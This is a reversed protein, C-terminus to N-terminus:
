AGVYSNPLKPYPYPKGSRALDLYNGWWQMMQKRQDMYKAHNYAGAVQNKLLHALQAEVHFFNFGAENLITSALGRYGHGTMKGQYGMRKLAGLITNNSMPKEHDREGPFILKCNGTLANLTKLVEIAQSCLPVIHSGRKKKKMRSEPVTWIANDFDIEEWRAGILESTRIFTLAMLKMALRTLNSGVYAEVKTLFVPLDKYEVRAFNEVQRPKMFDGCRVEATPNRDTLGHAIAYRFVQGCVNYNRKAVDLAGREEIKKIMAVLDKPSIEKIQRRGIEPFVDTELRTLVYNSYRANKTSQWHQHWDRAVSEFSTEMSVQQKQKKARKQECPDKGELLERKADDRKERAEKLSILPYPGLALLKQQGHRRYAYRWLKGGSPSIHLQLGGFDSIKYLKERPSAAKIQVDTLAM